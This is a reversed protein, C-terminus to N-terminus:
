PRAPGLWRVHPALATQALANVLRLDGTVMVAHHTVALALYLCDYVSRQTRLALPLAAGVLAATPTYAIPLRLVDALLDEAEAADLEGRRQRKWLVNAVEAALFDPARLVTPSALLARALDHEPEPLFAAAIVSADVITTKM